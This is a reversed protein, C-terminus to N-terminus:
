KVNLENLLQWYISIGKDIESILIYENPTHSRASDGPGIKITTFNMLAQDSTTPSGYTTLGKQLGRLVLPDNLEIRPSNLRFSRAEVKTRSYSM